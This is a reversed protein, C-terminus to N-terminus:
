GVREVLANAALIWGLYVSSVSAVSFLFGGVTATTRFRENGRQAAYFMLLLLCVAPLLGIAGSFVRMVGLTVTPVDAGLDVLAKEFEVKLKEELDAILTLLDSIHEGLLTCLRATFPSGMRECHGAQIRFAERIEPSNDM